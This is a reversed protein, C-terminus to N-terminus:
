EENYFEEDYEDNYSYDKLFGTKSVVHQKSIDRYEDKDWWTTL